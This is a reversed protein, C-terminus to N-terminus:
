RAGWDLRRGGPTPGDVPPIHVAVRRRNRAALLAVDEEGNAHDAVAQRNQLRSALHNVENENAGAAAAIRSRSGLRLSMREIENGAGAQMPCDVCNPDECDANTCDECDGDKCNECDCECTEAALFADPSHRFRAQMRFGRALAMAAVEDEAPAAVVATALGNGVCDAASFWSEADMLAKVKALSLGTRDVYAGAISDDITDLTDAMKSMDAKNGVCAAWANHIMMMAARGMIRTDGAMAVISASSAAIGDVCVEITKGCARLLSHIAMGEFADGGPSNIRVRVKSCTTDSDLAKKVNLASVFLGETAIGWSELNAITGQDVIDGYIMLELAGDSAVSANFQPRRANRTKTKM